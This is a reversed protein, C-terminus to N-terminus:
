ATLKDHRVALPVTVPGDDVRHVQTDAGFLGYEIHPHRARAAVPVWEDAALARVAPTCEGARRLLAM